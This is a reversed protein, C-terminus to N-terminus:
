RSFLSHAAPDTAIRSGASGAAATAQDAKIIVSTIDDDQLDGQVFARTARYIGDAINSASDHRLARIQDFVRETGFQHGDPKTSETVGDTLFVAIDGPDLPIAQQLSFKSASFLGLPPGTSNLTCKVEGSDRLLLGPVHGASAYSLTRHSVNLRALILTVFDGHKLDELLMQNVRSLMEDLELQMAAFCRVYARTLAMVLASSFGHGKADAVAIVLSGDAMSIFDFYDGGTAAAHHASAGIDFGLVVPPVAYFHQQVDHALQLQFEQEQKKRVETIDQSVSVFYTQHGSDDLMSTITQQAWYLEGTKRRNIVMGKFPLGRAFQAWMQRYFEADHLGSKLIRPTKGMAEDRGYGTTAEFAPNVYQIVGQIDTLMVSDTTQEVIRSLLVFTQLAERDLTSDDFM